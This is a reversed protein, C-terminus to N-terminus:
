FWGPHLVFSDSKAINESWWLPRMNQWSFCEKVQKPNTLDFEAVPRIHDINWHGRGRGYNAWSMGSLFQRELHMKLEAVSCGVVKHFRSESRKTKHGVHQYLYTRLNQALKFQPDTKHRHRRYAYRKAKHGQFSRANCARERELYEPDKRRDKYYKHRWEAQEANIRKQRAIKEPNMWNIINKRVRWMLNKNATHAFAWFMLVSSNNTNLYPAWDKPIRIFPTADSRRPGSLRRVIEAQLEQETM